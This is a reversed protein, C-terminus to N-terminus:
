ERLPALSSAGFRPEITMATKESPEERLTTAIYGWKRSGYGRCRLPLRCRWGDTIGIATKKAMQKWINKGRTKRQTYVGFPCDGVKWDLVDTEM